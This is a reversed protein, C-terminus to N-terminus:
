VVSKRDPVVLMMRYMNFAHFRGYKKSVEGFNTRAFGESEFLAESPRNDTEVGAFVERVGTAKFRQISDELLLRGIGMRRHARAVAIYYVYGVEAELTKLMVLGIPAGSSVASRVVEVDRLTGQSHRLYWGEFSEELISDLSPRQEVPVDVIM